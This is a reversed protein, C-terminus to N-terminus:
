AAESERVATVEYRREGAADVSYLEGTKEDVYLRNAPNSDSGDAENRRGPDNFTYYERGQEDVGKGTIVIWHDTVGDRNKNSGGPRNVGVIVPKGADLDGDILSRLAPASTPPLGLEDSGHLWSTKGAGQDRLGAEALMKQCARLCAESPNKLSWQSIFPVQASLASPNRTPPTLPRPESLKPRPTFPTPLGAAALGEMNIAVM